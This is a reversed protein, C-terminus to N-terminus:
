EDESIFVVRGTQTIIILQQEEDGHIIIQSGPSVSHSLPKLGELMADAAAELDVHCKKINTPCTDCGAPKIGAALFGQRHVCRSIKFEDWGEPRWM